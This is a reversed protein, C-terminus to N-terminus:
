RFASIIRDACLQSSRSSTDLTLNYRFGDHVIAAEREATGLARDGRCKERRRLEETECEIGIWFAEFPALHFELDLRWEAKTIANDLILRNGSKLLSAAAAHYGLVLKSYSYEAKTIAAGRMMSELDSDPLAYLISDISFNLYLVPLKEQLVKVISSKGASSAGNLIIVQPLIM